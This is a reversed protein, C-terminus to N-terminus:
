TATIGDLMLRAIADAMRRRTGEGPQRLGQLIGNVARATYDTDLDERLYGRNVGNDFYAATRVQTRYEDLTAAAPSNEEALVAPLREILDTIVHDV